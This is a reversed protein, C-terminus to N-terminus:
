VNLIGNNDSFRKLTSLKIANFNCVEVLYIVQVVEEISLSCIMYNINYSLLSYDLFM